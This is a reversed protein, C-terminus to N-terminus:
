AHHGGMLVSEHLNGTRDEKSPPDVLTSNYFSNTVAAAKWSGDVKRLSILSKHPNSVWTGRSLVHTQYAGCILRDDLLTASDALRILQTVQQSRLVQQYDAFGARLDADTAVVQNSRPGILFFPLHMANFYMQFNNTLLAISVEDLYTQCIDLLMPKGVKQFVTEM